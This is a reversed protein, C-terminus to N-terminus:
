FAFGAQFTSLVGVNSANDDFTTWWLVGVELGAGVYASKFLKYKAAGGVTVAFESIFEKGATMYANGVASSTFRNTHQFNLSVGGNGALHDFNNTGVGAHLGFSLTSGVQFNSGVVVVTYLSTEKGPAMSVAVTTGVSGSVNSPASPKKELKALRENYNRINLSELYAVRAELQNVRDQLEDFEITSVVLDLSTDEVPQSTPSKPAGFAVGPNCVNYITFLVFLTKKM